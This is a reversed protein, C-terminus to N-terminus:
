FISIKVNLYKKPDAKIQTILGALESTVKNMNEYLQRDKLLQGATGEGNNLSTILKDLRDTVSNLQNFLAPDNILKGATGEGGNLKAILADLRDSTSSLSNAFSDDKLLKGLSGEGANLQRTLAEINRLSADLSDAARQDTLLKGAVGQGKRVGETLDSATAVFRRLETYLQEDTMLKGITGRGERMDHVLSTLEAVGQGAQETIDSLQAGQRGLPVYGWEPVPTGRSSPTIDVASEGLLSLSGLTVISGTTIMNQMDKNVTITVDVQQGVFTMDGVTGVEIGAVRVPSGPKLGSVNVFRVKLSYQQWFFGKTGTILLILTAAILLASLTAVGIKLESWALSRTRPM